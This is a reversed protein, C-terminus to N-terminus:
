FTSEYAINFFTVSVENKFPLGAYPNYILNDMGTSNANTSKGAAVNEEAKLYAIALDIRSDADLKYGFGAGYYDAPGVPIILDQKDEEAMAERLEYGLRLELRDSVLYQIGLGFAYSDRYNRPLKLETQSAQNPAVLLAVKLFNLNKDFNIDFSDWSSYESWRVDTTLILDPFLVLKMGLQADAPFTMTLTAEGKETANGDPLIPTGLTNLGGWFAQWSESYSFEYDGKMTTKAESRYTFGLSFWPIPEWLLGINFSPSVFEDVELTLNGIDKFPGLRNAPECSSIDIGIEDNAIGCAIDVGALLLNPARLDMDMGVSQTSLGISFGMFFQDTIQTALTPSLYTLRLLSVRRGQYRGPDDDARSYGVAQPSYVSSGFVFSSSPPAIAFGGLPFAQAPIDIMGLGPLAMVPASSDLQSKSNELPDEFSFAELFDKSSGQHKGFSTSSELLAAIFKLQYTDRRIKALGAPNYHISDVGKPDATVAFGLAMARPDGIPLQQLFQAQALNGMFVTPVVMMMILMFRRHM